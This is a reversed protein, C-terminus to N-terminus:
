TGKKRLAALGEDVAKKSMRVLNRQSKEYNLRGFAEEVALAGATWALKHDPWLDDWDDMSDFMPHGRHAEKYADYNVKGIWESLNHDVGADDTFWLENPADQKLWINEIALPPLIKGGQATVRKYESKSHAVRVSSKKKPTTTSKSDLSEPFPSRIDDPHVEGMTADFIDEPGQKCKTCVDERYFVHTFNEDLPKGCGSCETGGCIDCEIQKSM